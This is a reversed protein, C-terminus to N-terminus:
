SGPDTSFTSVTDPRSSAPLTVWVVRILTGQSSGTSSRVMPSQNSWPSIRNVMAPTIARLELMPVASAAM